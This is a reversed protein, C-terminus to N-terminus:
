FDRLSDIRSHDETDYGYREINFVVKYIQIKKVVEGIYARAFERRTYGLRTTAM